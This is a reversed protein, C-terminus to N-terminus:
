IPVFHARARKTFPEKPAVGIVVKGTECDGNAVDLLSLERGRSDVQGPGVCHAHSVNRRRKKSRPGVCSLGVEAVREVREVANSVWRHEGKAIIM